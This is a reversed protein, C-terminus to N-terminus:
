FTHGHGGADGLGTRNTMAEAHNASRELRNLSRARDEALQDWERQSMCVRRVRTLSGTIKESKCVKKETTATDNDQASAPATIFALVAGAVYLAKM